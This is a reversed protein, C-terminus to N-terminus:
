LCRHSTEDAAARVSDFSQLDCHVTQVNAEPYEASITEQAKDARESPRNLMVIRGGKSALVRAAVLGTGSTTGTIVFTKGQQDALDDVFADYYKSTKNPKNYPM